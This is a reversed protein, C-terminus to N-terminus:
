KAAKELTPAPMLRGLGFQDGAHIPKGGFFDIELLKESQVDQGHEDKLTAVIKRSAVDIVEGTSPYAFRGDISFTIWGPQDRLEISQTQRPPMVTNDFVHIRSNHADTVWLEKEDPTLGIGHSPCGHRKTEGTPFGQVEVRFLKKGSVLDGIEFGLLGDVNVYCLTGAGNVTFPRIPAAFPGATGQATRTKADAITLMPSHLAALYAHKGDLSFITNHAGASTPIRAIEQGDEGSIVHWFKGELTPEYITTGDPSISMRDCGSEYTKEWVVANTRLDLCTLSRTNSVYLRGTASSACIGKAAETHANTGMAPVLIRRVFKHGQDIDFVLIGHGGYQSYDRIGPVAVYLLHRVESVGAAPAKPTEQAFSVSTSISLVLLLLVTRM